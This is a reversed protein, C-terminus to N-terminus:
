ARDTRMGFIRYIPCMGVFSTALMVAALVFLVIALPGSAFIGLIILVPAVVYARLKRDKQSMNKDM